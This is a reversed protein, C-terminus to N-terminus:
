IEEIKISGGFREKYKKNQEVVYNLEAFFDTDLYYKRLASELVFLRDEITADKPLHRPNDAFPIGTTYDFTEEENYITSNKLKLLLVTYPSNDAIQLEKIKTDVFAEKITPEFGFGKLRLSNSLFSGLLDGLFGGLVDEAILEMDLNRLRIRFTLVKITAYIQLNIIATENRKYAYTYALELISVIAVNTISM